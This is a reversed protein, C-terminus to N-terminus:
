ITLNIIFNIIILKVYFHIIETYYINEFQCLLKPIRFFCTIFKRIAVGEKNLRNIFTLIRFNSFFIIPNFWGAPESFFNDFQKEASLFM